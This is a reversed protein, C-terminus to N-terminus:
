PRLRTRGDLLNFQKVRGDLLSYVRVRGLMADVALTYIQSPTLTHGHALSAAILGYFAAITTSDLAQVHRIDAPSVSPSAGLVSTPDLTMGHSLEDVSLTHAQVLTTAALAQNHAARAPTLAYGATVVGADLLHGHSLANPSVAYVLTLGAEALAHAHVLGAAVISHAQTLAAQALTQGHGVKVPSLTGATVLLTQALTQAHVLEAPSLVHQQTLAAQALAQAHAIEAPVINHQQLLATGAVTHPHALSNTGLTSQSVLLTTALTHAHALGEPTMQHAQTITVQALTHPHGVDAPQMQHEQVLASEDITQGHAVDEPSAAFSSVAATTAELTHPSSVDAPAIQHEQVLAPEEITQSHAVAAPALEPTPTGGTGYTYLDAIQTPTLGYDFITLHDVTADLNRNTFGGDRGVRIEENAMTPLTDSHTDSAREVGNIYVKIHTANFVAAVFLDTDKPVHTSSVTVDVNVSGKVQFQLGGANERLLFSSAADNGQGRAVLPAFSETDATWNFWLLITIYDMNFDAHHPIDIYEDASAVFSVATGAPLIPAEGLTPANIYDGDHGNGSADAATNGSVEDLRLDILPNLAAIQAAYELYTLTPQDVTHGHSVSAPPVSHAQTLDSAEITQPHGLESPSLNHQQFLAPAALGQTHSISAPSIASHQTLTTADLSHSHSADAAEVTTSGGAQVEFVGIDWDSRANGIIDDTFFASLDQGAGLLASGAAPTYDGNAEDEFDGSVINDVSSAGPASTDYSANNDSDNWDTGSDFGQGGATRRWAVCNKVTCSDVSQSSAEFGQSGFEAATCNRYTVNEGTGSHFGVTSDEALVNECTSAGNGSTTLAYHSSKNGNGGRVISNRLLFNRASNSIAYSVFGTRLNRVEIHEIRTYRVANSIVAGQFDSEMFFGTKSQGTHRHGAAVTITIYHTSDVTWDSNNIATPDDLGSAWDDYLEIVLREDAAVLDGRIASEGAIAASLSTYDGGSSRVTKTVVAPM